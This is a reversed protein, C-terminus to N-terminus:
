WALGDCLSIPPWIHLLFRLLINSFTVLALSESWIDVLWSSKKIREGARPRKSLPPQVNDARKRFGKSVCLIQQDACIVESFPDFSFGQGVDPVYFNLLKNSPINDRSKSSWMSKDWIISKLKIAIGKPLVTWIQTYSISIRGRSIRLPIPLSFSNVFYYNIPKLLPQIICFSFPHFFQWM